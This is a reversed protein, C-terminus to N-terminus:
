SSCVIFQHNTSLVVYWMIFRLFQIHLPISTPTTVTPPVTLAKAQNTSINHALSSARSNKITWQYVIAYGNLFSYLQHLFIYSPLHLRTPPFVHCYSGWVDIPLNLQHRQIIQCHQLSEPIDNTGLCCLIPVLLQFHASISCGSYCVILLM